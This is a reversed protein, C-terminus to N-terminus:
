NPRISILRLALRLCDAGHQMDQQADDLGMQALGAAGARMRTEARNAEDMAETGGEVPVNM